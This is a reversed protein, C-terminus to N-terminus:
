SREEDWALHVSFEYSYDYPCYANTNEKNSLSQIGNIMRRVSSNGERRKKGEEELTVAKM